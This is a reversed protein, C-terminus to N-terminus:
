LPSPLVMGRIACTAAGQGGRVPAQGLYSEVSRVGTATNIVSMLCQSLTGRYLGASDSIGQAM